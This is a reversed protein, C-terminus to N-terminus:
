DIKIVYLEAEEDQSYAGFLLGSPPGKVQVFYSTKPDLPNQAAWATYEKGGLNLKLGKLPYNLTSQSPLTGKPGVAHFTIEAGAVGFIAGPWADKTPGVEFWQGIQPTGYVDLRYEVPVEKVPSHVKAVLKAPMGPDSSSLLDAGKLPTPLSEAPLPEKGELLILIPFSLGRKAQVTIALLSLGYRISPTKLQEPDALIAWLSVEPKVMEERPGVWAMKELNDEWFHGQVQLGYTKMQSMFNKVKDEARPISTLWITKM